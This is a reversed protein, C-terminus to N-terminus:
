LFYLTLLITSLVVRPFGRVGLACPCASTPQLHLLRSAVVFLTSSWDGFVAGVCWRIQRRRLCLSVRMASVPCRFAVSRGHDISRVSEGKAPLRCRDKSFTNFMCCDCLMFRFTDFCCKRQPCAVFWLVYITIHWFLMVHQFHRLDSFMFRITDSWCKCQSICRLVYVTTQWFWM